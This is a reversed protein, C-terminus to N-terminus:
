AAVKMTAVENMREFSPLVIESVITEKNVPHPINITTVAIGGEVISVDGNFNASQLDAEEPTTGYYTNGVTSGPLLTVFNDPYFNHTSGDEAKFKKDYIAVSIGVESLLLSKLEADRVLNLGNALPNLAIRISKNQLLYNWTKQTMIARTPKVGTLDVIKSQMARIDELPTAHETDSWMSTGSMEMYNNKKWEGDVDYNYTYDVGNAVISIGGTVLLQMRMRESQILAGEILQARDDFIESIISSYLNQNDNERFRLLEQRDREKITMAERFFPMETEIKKVGIRDRVTAKTDFTSPKLAIPLGKYGKIWALDLGMKKKSPFLGEGLYPIRNSVTEQWYTTLAKASVLDMVSNM